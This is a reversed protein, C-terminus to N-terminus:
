PLVVIRISQLAIMYTIEYWTPDDVIESDTGFIPPKTKAGFGDGSDTPNGDVDITGSGDGEGDNFFGDDLSTTDDLLEIGVDPQVPAATAVGWAMTMSVLLIVLSVFITRIRKM